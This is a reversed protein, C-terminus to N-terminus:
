KNKHKKMLNWRNHREEESLEQTFTHEINVKICLEPLKCNKFYNNIYGIMNASGIPNASHVYITPLPIKTNMSEAVLFRACDMGTKEIIRNYDLEYNQKTHTYYEILAGEGLDHDLSIVEYNELGNMKIHAVFEDYNRVVEWNDAEPSRVDDLYLYLKNKKMM